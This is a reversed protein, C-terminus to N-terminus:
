KKIKKNDRLSLYYQSQKRSDDYNVDYEPLKPDFIDKIEKKYSPDTSPITLKKDTKLNLKQSFNSIKDTKLIEIEADPIKLDITSPIKSSIFFDETDKSNIIKFTYSHDNLDKKNQIPYFVNMKLKKNNILDLIKLDEYSSETYNKSLTKITLNKNIQNIKESLAPINERESIDLTAIQKGDKLVSVTYIIDRLIDVTGIEKIVRELYSFLKM